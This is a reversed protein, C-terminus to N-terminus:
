KRGSPPVFHGKLREGGAGEPNGAGLGANLLPRAGSAHTPRWFCSGMLDLRLFAGRCREGPGFFFESPRQGRLPSPMSRDNGPTPGLIM